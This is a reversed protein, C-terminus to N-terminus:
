EEITFISPVKKLTIIPLYQIYGLNAETEDFGATFSLRTKADDRVDYRLFAGTPETDVITYLLIPLGVYNFYGSFSVLTGLILKGQQKFFYITGHQNESSSILWKALDEPSAVEFPIASSVDM